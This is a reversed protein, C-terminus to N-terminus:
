HYDIIEVDYADIGSWRFCIRWQHNIRISHQGARRGILSELHNGPLIRLENLSHVAHLLLLKRRAPREINRFRPVPVSLFLRETDRSAFSRIM